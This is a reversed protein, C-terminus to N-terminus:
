QQKQKKKEVWMIIKGIAEKLQKKTMIRTIIEDSQQREFPCSEGFKQAEVQGLKCVITRLAIVGATFLSRLIPAEM